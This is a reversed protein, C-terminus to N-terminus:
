EFMCSKESKDNMVSETDVGKRKREATVAGLAKEVKQNWVKM